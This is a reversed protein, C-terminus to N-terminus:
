KKDGHPLMLVGASRSIALALKEPTSTFDQVRRNLEAMGMLLNFFFMAAEDSYPMERAEDPLQISTWSNLLQAPNEAGLHSEGKYYYDYTSSSKKGYTTTKKLMAKAGVILSYGGPAQDCANHAGYLKEPGRTPWSAGPFGANPFIKGDKTLAFSVHSEINFRIVPEEVVAPAMFEEHAQEITSILESFTLASTVFFGKRQRERIDIDDEKFSVRLKDPVHTYFTGNARIEISLTFEDVAGAANKAVFDVRKFHPM